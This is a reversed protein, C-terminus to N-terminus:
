KNPGKGPPPGPVWSPPGNPGSPCSAEVIPNPINKDAWDFIFDLVDLNNTGLMNMHTTGLFRGGFEPSDLDIDTAPGVTRTPSANMGGHFADGAARLASTRYDGSLHLYPITDYDQPTTGSAAFSGAGEPILVGKLLHLEGRERLIRVAFPVQIGSQSHPSVIAGGLRELLEVLALPTWTNAPAVTTPVCTPCFSSPFLVEMSPVHWKYANLALYTNNAPNPAPGIAGVRAQINADISSDVPPIPYKPPYNGHGQSPPDTEAPDPDGPDGHRIMTGNSINSGAPIIHGFWNTWISSPAGEGFSPPLLGLNSTAIAENLVTSDFGSRGRGPQDVVFTAYNNRVAHAFWGERGDPTSDVVSGTLGGGHVFVIPWRRHKKPIQFQVYMQGIIVQRPTGFTPVKPVGGVFFAGEDCIDLGPGILFRKTLPNVPDTPAAWATTAAVVLLVATVACRMPNYRM